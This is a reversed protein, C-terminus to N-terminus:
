HASLLESRNELCHSAAATLLLPTLIQSALGAANPDIYEYARTTILLSGLACVVVTSPVKRHHKIADEPDSVRACRGLNGMSELVPQEWLLHTLQCLIALDLDQHSRSPRGLSIAETVKTSLLPLVVARDGFADNSKPPQHRVGSASVSQSTVGELSSLNYM